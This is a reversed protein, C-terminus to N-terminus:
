IMELSKSNNIFKSTHKLFEVSFDTLDHKILEKLFFKM